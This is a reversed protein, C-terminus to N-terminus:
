AETSSSNLMISACVVDGMVSPSTVSITRAPSGITFSTDKFIAGVVVAGFGTATTSAGTACFLVRFDDFRDLVDFVRRFCGALALVTVWSGTDTDSSSFWFVSVVLGAETSVAKTDAWAGFSKLGVGM